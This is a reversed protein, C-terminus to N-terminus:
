SAVQIGLKELLQPKDELAIRAIAKYDAVWDSMLEFAEDRDITAQQSEGKEKEQKANALEATEFLAHGAELKEQTQGFEALKALCDPDGLANIYFQKVQSLWGSTSIKRKGDLGLTQFMARDNKFAVRGVKVFVMYPKNAAARAAKFEDTAEYQDGYEAKQKFHKAETDDYLAKGANLKEPTYGFASVNDSIEPDDLSNTIAIKADMLEEDMSKNDTAM